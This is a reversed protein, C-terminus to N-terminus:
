AFRRWFEPDRHIEAVVEDSLKKTEVRQREVLREAPSLRRRVDGLPGVNPVLRSLRARRTRALEQYQYAAVRGGLTERFGAGHHYVLPGHEADGYLGFMLWHLDTSNVRRLPYWDVQARELRALVRSGLDSVQQGQSDVWKKGGRHWNGNIERWLGVTTICFCPHPQIDGCNEYRQVAILRHSELRVEILPAIPAVPFADGDIFVLLDSPDEAAFGILEGLIDLKTAHDRIPEKSSYFFKDQHDGPVRYLFAYVRFPHPLFRELYHLQTDIWRDTRWHVTAVHIMDAAAGEDTPLRL